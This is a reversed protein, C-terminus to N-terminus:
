AFPALCIVVVAVRIIFFIFTVRILYGVVSSQASHLCHAKTVAPNLGFFAGSSCHFFAMKVALCLGILTNFKAKKSSFMGLQTLTMYM